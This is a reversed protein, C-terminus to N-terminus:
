GQCDFIVKSYSGTEITRLAKDFESLKYRHSILEALKIKGSKVLDIARTMTRNYSFAAFISLNKRYINFPSIKMFSDPPCVGYLLVRANFDAYKFIQEGAAASGTADVLIDFGHGSVAKLNDDLSADNVFTGSAGFKKANELKKENLDVVTVRSIGSINLLQLLIIGIPGAGFLLATEGYNINIRDLGYIVCALPELLAAEEPPIGEIRHLNSESIVSYQAFGGNVTVGYGGFNECFNQQNISCYRCKNCCINPDIVVMDDKKFGSVKRGTKQVIGSFEHGPILPYTSLFEGKLIHLDTGCFGAYSNKVLVESDGPVPMEIEKIKYQDPKEFIVAKM